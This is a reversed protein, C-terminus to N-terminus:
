PLPSFVTAVSESEVADGAQTGTGHLEIYTVDLPDVGAAHLVQRYNDMQAGAHPHTISIAEASHNTAGAAVVAIVNDNDAEADELRKIVVSGVGDARCYGDAKEDWVKCQGTKSLFHGKCLMAYNDPNTIVSLGGAVAMDVRGDWLAACAEQVAALGSSCATDLNLSPGAWKFFYNLRGNAFAREGGPVGYTGIRQGANVERYDDSAQGYFTGTRKTNTSPTRNPVYGADELAEYATVLALRHMPDTQEAEVPSMNFFGADFLGPRDIFNGYPTETANPTRGTPDFHAELDFRDKPVTTHTDRGSVLLDWFLENNDAGGPMRCSMGVIALHSRSTKEKMAKDGAKLPDTASAWRSLDCVELSTTQPMSSQLRSFLEVTAPSTGVQMLRLDSCMAGLTSDLNRALELLCIQKTLIELTVAKQLEALTAAEFPRGDNVSHLPVVVTRSDVQQPPHAEGGVIAEVDAQGYLHPAHCLGGYVPLPAHRSYRLINSFMFARKLRSPPGTISISSEDAASIFVKVSESASTATNFRELEAQVEEVSRGTLVYAWSKTEDATPELRQSIRFVHVGLRFAIRACWPGLTTLDALSKSAAVATASLLGISLGALLANENNKHLECETECSEHHGIFLGLQVICLLFGELASTLSGAHPLYSAVDPLTAFHPLAGDHPGIYSLERRLVQLSESLLLRLLPFSGQRACLQLHNLISTFGGEPVENGLFLLNGTTLADNQESGTDATLCGFDSPTAALLELHQAM